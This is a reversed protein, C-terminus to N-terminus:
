SRLWKSIKGNMCLFTVSCFAGAFDILVDMGSMVRGATQGQHLEDFLALGGCALLCLLWRLSFPFHLISLIVYAIVGFFFYISFHALKRITMNWDNGYPSQEEIKTKVRDALQAAKPDNETLKHIGESIIETLNQSRTGSVEGTEASLRYLAVAGLCAVGAFAAALVLRFIWKRIKM